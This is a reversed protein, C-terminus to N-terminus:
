AFGPTRALRAVWLQASTKAGVDASMLTDYGGVLTM